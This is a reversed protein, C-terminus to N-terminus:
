RRAEEENATDRRGREGVLNQTHVHDGKRIACSAAGIAVGYKRVSDGQGIDELAIKHAFPIRDRCRARGGTSLLAEDGADFDALAVAVNDAPDLVIARKL